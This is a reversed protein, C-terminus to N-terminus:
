TLMSKTHSPFQEQYLKVVQLLHQLQKECKTGTKNYKTFMQVAREATDNVVQIHKCINLGDRYEDLESWQAPDVTLFDTSIEFREFFKKANETVFSDLELEGYTEKMEQPKAKARKNNPGHVKLMKVMKRKVEISVSSDFFGFATAEESLYWLHESMKTLIIKSIAPDIKEYEIAAKILQLDNHPAAIGSTCSFWYKVYILVGFICIDCLGSREKESMECQDRFFFMKYSYILKQMWRAFHTPGPPAFKRGAPLSGGAFLIVMELLERYDDRPQKQSIQQKCFDIIDDAIEKNIRKAVDPDSLGSVFKNQDIKEWNQKFNEFLPINPSTTSGLLKEVIVARLIIEGIHHRCPLYLIDRKLLKELICAAGKKAGTNVATTDFCAAQAKNVLNNNKLAEYVANATAEGTGESLKPVSLLQENNAQTIVIPLREVKKM